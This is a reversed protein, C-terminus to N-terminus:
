IIVRSPRFRCNMPDYSAAVCTASDHVIARTPLAPLPLDRKRQSGIAGEKNDDSNSRYEQLINAM